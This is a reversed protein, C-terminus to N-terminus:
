TAEGATVYFGRRTRRVTGVREMARLHAHITGKSVTGTLTCLEAITAPEGERSEHARMADWVKQQAVTMMRVLTSCSRHNTM